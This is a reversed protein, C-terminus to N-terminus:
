SYKCGQFLFAQFVFVRCPRDAFACAFEQHLGTRYFGSFGQLARSIARLRNAPKPQGIAVESAAQLASARGGHWAETKEKHVSFIRM